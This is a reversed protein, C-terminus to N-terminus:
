GNDRLRKARAEAKAKIREDRVMQEALAQVETEEALQRQRNLRLQATEKKAKALRREGEIGNLIAIRYEIERLEDELAKRREGEVKNIIEQRREGTDPDEVVRTGIFDALDYQIAAARKELEYVEKSIALLERQYPEASAPIGGRVRLEYSNRRMAAIVLGTENKEREDPTMGALQAKVPEALHTPLMAVTLREPLKIDGGIWEVPSPLDDVPDFVEIGEVAEAEEETLDYSPLEFDSGATDPITFGDSPEPNNPESM